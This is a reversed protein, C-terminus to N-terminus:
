KTRDGQHEEDWKKAMQTQQNKDLGLQEAFDLDYIAHQWSEAKKVEAPRLYDINRLNADSLKVGSFNVMSLEAKTLEAGSLNVGSLKADTLNAEWLNAKVLKAKILNASMLNALRLDAKNLNAGMLNVNMLKADMLYAGELNTEELDAWSLYAGELNARSLDAGRLDVGRLDLSRGKDKYSDRRGIVTIAAQIDKPCPELTEEEPLNIDDLEEDSFGDVVVLATPRERVFLTLVEMVTWHDDSSGIDSEKAIRELAYIGAVRVMLSDKDALMEAAKVFRESVQKSETLKRNNEAIQKNIEKNEEAIKRNDEATKANKLAASATLLVFIGGIAQVITTRAKNEADFRAVPDTLHKTQLYPVLTVLLVGLLGLIWFKLRKLNEILGVCSKKLSRALAWSVKKLREGLGWCFKFPKEVLGRSFM